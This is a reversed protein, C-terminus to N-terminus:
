SMHTRFQANRCLNNPYNRERLRERDGGRKKTNLGTKPMFIDPAPKDAAPSVQSQSLTEKTGSYRGRSLPPLTHKECNISNVKPKCLKVRESFLPLYSTRTTTQDEAPAQSATGLANEDSRHRLDGHRVRPQTGWDQFCQKSLTEAQLKAKFVRFTSSPCNVKVRKELSQPPPLYSMRTVADGDCKAARKGGLTPTEQKPCSLKEHRHTTPQWVPALLRRLTQIYKNIGQSSKDPDPKLVQNCEPAQFDREYQNICNRYDPDMVSAIKRGRIYVPFMSQGLPSSQFAIQHPATLYHDGSHSPEEGYYTWPKHSEGYTTSLHIWPPKPQSFYSLRQLELPAKPLTELRYKVDEPAIENQAESEQAAPHSKRPRAQHALMEQHTPNLALGNSAPYQFPDPRRDGPSTTNFPPHLGLCAAVPELAQQRPPPRHNWTNDQSLLNVPM